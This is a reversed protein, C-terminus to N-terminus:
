PRLENSINQLNSVKSFFTSVTSDSLSTAGADLSLSDEPLLEALMASQPKEVGDGM